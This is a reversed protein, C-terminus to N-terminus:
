SIDKANAGLIDHKKILLLRWVMAVIVPVTMSVIIVLFLGAPRPLQPMSQFLLLLILYHYLYIWVSYRGLIAFSSKLINPLRVVGLMLYVVILLSIAWLIFPVTPTLGLFYGATANLAWETFVFIELTTFWFFWHNPLGFRGMVMGLWFVLLYISGFMRGAPSFPWPPHGVVEQLWWAVAAIAITLIM